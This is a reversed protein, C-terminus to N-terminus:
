SFSVQFYVVLIHFILKYASVHVTEHDSVCDVNSCLELILCTFFVFKLRLRIHNINLYCQVIIGGAFRNM